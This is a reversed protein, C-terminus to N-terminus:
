MINQIYRICSIICKFNTLIAFKIDKAVILLLCVLFIIHISKKKLNQISEM